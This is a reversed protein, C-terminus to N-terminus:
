GSESYSGGNTAAAIAAAVQTAHQQPLLHSARQVVTLEAGPIQTALQRASEIPVVRDASGAVITTPAAIEHLRSELEPLGTVLARQDSAFARWTSPTLLARGAAGLYREDLAMMGALRRRLPPVSLALGATSLTTAGAILGIGPSALLRDWEYLSAVNAAPAILVLSAVREPHILALSVAVAAGLSHGAITAREIAHDDLAAVAARANGELDAPQSRGDWGPRDIAVTTATAGLRTRVRAWDRAGGPQGHLLLVSPAIM